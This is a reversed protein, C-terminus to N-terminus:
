GTPEVSINTGYMEVQKKIKMVILFLSYSLLEWRHNGSVGFDRIAHCIIIKTSAGFINCTTYKMFILKAPNM